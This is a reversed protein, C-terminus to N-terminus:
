MYLFFPLVLDQLHGKGKYGGGGWGEEHCVHSIEIVYQNRIWAFLPSDELILKPIAKGGVTHYM